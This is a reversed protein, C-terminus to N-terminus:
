IVHPVTEPEQGVAAGPFLDRLIDAGDDGFVDVRGADLLALVDGLQVGTQLLVQGALAEDEILRGHRREAFLEAGGPEIRFPLALIALLGPFQQFLRDALQRLANRTARSYCPATM